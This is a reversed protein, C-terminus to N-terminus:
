RKRVREDDERSLVRNFRVAGVRKGLGLEVAEHQLHEDIVRAELFLDDDDLPDGARRDLEALHHGDVLELLHLARDGLDIDIGRHPGIGRREGIRAARPLDLTELVEGRRDGVAGAWAGRDVQDRGAPREGEHATTGIDERVVQVFHRGLHDPVPEDEGVFPDRSTDISLRDDLAHEISERRRTDVESVPKGGSTTVPPTATSWNSGRERQGTSRRRPKWGPPSSRELRRPAPSSYLSTRSYWAPSSGRVMSHFM